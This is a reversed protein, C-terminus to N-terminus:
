KPASASKEEHSKGNSGFEVRHKVRSEHGGHQPVAGVARFHGGIATGARNLHGEAAGVARDETEGVANEGATRASVRQRDFVDLAEELKQEPLLAAAAQEQGASRVHGGRQALDVGLGTGTREIPFEDAMLNEAFMDHDLRHGRVLQGCGVFAGHGEAAIQVAAPDAEVEAPGVAFTRRHDIALHHKGLFDDPIRIELAIRLVVKFADVVREFARRGMQRPDIRDAATGGSNVDVVLDTGGREEAAHTRRIEFGVDPPNKKV